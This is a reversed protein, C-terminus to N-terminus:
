GQNYGDDKLYDGWLISDFIDNTTYGNSSMGEPLYPLLEPLVLQSDFSFGLSSSPQLGDQTLGSTAVMPATDLQSFPILNADTMSGRATDHGAQHLQGHGQDAALKQEEYIQKLAMLGRKHPSWFQNDTNDSVAELLQFLREQANTIASDHRAQNTVALILAAALGNHLM